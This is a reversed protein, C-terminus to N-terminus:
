EYRGYHIFHSKVCQQHAIRSLYLGILEGKEDFLVNRYNFHVIPQRCRVCLSRRSGRNQLEKIIRKKEAALDPEHVRRVEVPRLRQMSGGREVSIPEAEQLIQLNRQDDNEM